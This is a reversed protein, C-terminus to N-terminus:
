FIVVVVGSDLRDRQEVREKTEERWFLVHVFLCSFCILQVKRGCQFPGMTRKSTLSHLCDM